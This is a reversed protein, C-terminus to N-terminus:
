FISKCTEKLESHDRVSIYHPSHTVEAYWMNLHWEGRNDHFMVPFLKIGKGANEEFCVFLDDSVDVFCSVFIEQDLLM